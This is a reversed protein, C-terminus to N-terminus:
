YKTYMGRLVGRTGRELQTYLLGSAALDSAEFNDWNPVPAGAYYGAIGGRTGGSIATDTVSIRQVGDQYVKINSGNCYTKVLCPISLTIGTNSIATEVGAVFKELYINDNFQYVFGAYFTSAASAFRAAVGAWKDASGSGLATVSAQAYHDSSSLDSDARCYKSGSTTGLELENGATTGWAGNVETWSLDPGITANAGQNFSETITTEHKVRGPTQNQLNAPVFEKWDDAGQLGFKDCWADLIRQHQKSDKMKGAHADAFYQAFQKHIVQKIKATHNSGRSGIRGWEFREGLVRSHGPMWLDIWGDQGPMIPMPGSSGDPDSGGTFCDYILDVLRDGQPKYGILSKFAAQITATTSIERCDGDGLLSYESPLVANGWCLCGKRPVGAVSMEPINGLDMSGTVGSPASYFGGRETNWQWPGLYYKM